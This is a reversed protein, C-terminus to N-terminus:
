SKKSVPFFQLNLQYVSTDSIRAAGYKLFIRQRFESLEAKLESFLTDDLTLTLHGYERKESSLNMLAFKSVDISQLFYSYIQEANMEEAVDVTPETPRTSGNHLKKIFKLRELVELAKEAQEQTIAPFVQDAIWKPDPRFRDLNSLERVVPIYWESVYDLADRSISQSPSYERIQLLKKLYGAKKSPDPEQNFKVLAFFYTTEQRTLQLAKSIKFASEPSINRKGSLIFQLFSKGGFGCSKSFSRLSFVSSQEKHWELRAKLFVRFDEFQYISPASSQKSMRASVDQISANM